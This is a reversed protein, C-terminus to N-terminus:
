KTETKQLGFATSALWESLAQASLPRSIFYGQAIDCGGEKLINLSLEDEVGEAVVSLKFVSALNLVTRVIQQDSEDSALKLVFSKDIKITQVPLMKLYALSSYGTGFDDIAFHFGM